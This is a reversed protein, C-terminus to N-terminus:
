KEKYNSLYMNFCFFEWRLLLVVGLEEWVLDKLLIMEDNEQLNIRLIDFDREEFLFFVKVIMFWYIVGIKLVDLFIFGWVM